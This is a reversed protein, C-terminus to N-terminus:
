TRTYFLIKGLAKIVVDSDQGQCFLTEYIYDSTHKVKKRPSIDEVEHESGAEEVSRKRRASPGPLSATGLSSSSSQVTELSASVGLKNGM